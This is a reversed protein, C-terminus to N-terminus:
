AAALWPYPEQYVVDLERAYRNLWNLLFATARTDDQNYRIIDDLIQRDGTTLWQEYATISASGSKVASSWQFGLFNCIKKLSYFYLPFVAHERAAEKLDIFRSRFLKLGPHDVDGYRTALVQLRTAEYTAYHYVTYDAPLTSLWALFKKWMSEEDEPHEALFSVPYETSGVKLWFGYLYDTDTMPHSEIDFHIELGHTHHAWAQKIIVSHNVLSRAQRAVSQLCRLTIGRELGALEAPDLEAAQYITRINHSRLFELKAVEVNFLLAIDDHEKALAFCAQGWPSTDECAKRYVPEPREGSLIRELKLTMQTFEAIYKQTEITLREGDRNIIAPSAPFRGQLRELLACYFLIPFIHEKKLEHARKIDVPVYHWSGFVSEGPHRELIDPRGVREGDLLWGQYIVPVGARMLELTAEAGAAPTPTDVSSFAAYHRAVIQDEHDLGDALRQEEVETLPRRLARDGFREWYPWHPCQLYRYYDTATLM